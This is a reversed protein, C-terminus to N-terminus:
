CIADATKEGQEEGERSQQISKEKEKYSHLEQIVKSFAPVFIDNEFFLEERKFYKKAVRRNSEMYKSLLAKRREEDLYGIGKKVYGKEEAIKNAYQFFM